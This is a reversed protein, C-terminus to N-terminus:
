AKSEASKGLVERVKLALNDTTFPKQIFTRETEEHGPRTPLPNSYGSMYLVKMNPRLATLRDALELGDMAPLGVDTLLLDIAGAHAACLRLAQSSSDAELVVYGHLRLVECLLNRVDENDEALLITESGHPLDPAAPEAEVLAEESRPVQPLSLVFTTGAGPTSAVEIGGGYQQVIKAVLTLGLGTGAGAQKTTFFPKFIHRRTETDMGHGTDRVTLLVKQRPTATRGPRSDAVANRTAITLAGGGPMADRANLVLNLLVQELQGPDAKVLAPAAELSADLAIHRGLLRELMKVMGAVLGNLDVVKVTHEHKRSYDLLQRSLTAAREAARQIERLPEGLPHFPALRGLVLNSYGLMVTMQNNLEHAVASTLRGLTELRHAQRLRGPPRPPLGRAGSRKALVPRLADLLDRPLVPKQLYDAAGAKMLQVAFHVDRSDSFFLVPAPRPLAQVLHLIELGDMGPVTLDFVAADALGQRLLHLADAANEAELFALGQSPRLSALLPRLEQRDAAILVREPQSGNEYM